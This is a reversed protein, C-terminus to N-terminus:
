VWVDVLAMSMRVKVRVQKDSMGSAQDSEFHRSCVGM